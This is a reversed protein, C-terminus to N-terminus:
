VVRNEAGTGNDTQKGIELTANHLEQLLASTNVEIHKASEVGGQPPTSSHASLLERGIKYIADVDTPFGRLFHFLADLACAQVKNGITGLLALCLFLHLCLDVLLHLGITLSMGMLVGLAGFMELAKASRFM